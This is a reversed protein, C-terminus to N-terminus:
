SKDGGVELAILAGQGAELTLQESKLLVMSEIDARAKQVVNEAHEALSKTAFEVNPTANKIKWRLHELEERIARVGAKNQILQDIKDVYEVIGDFAVSAAAKAEDMTQKLRPEEAIGPLVRLPGDRDLRLTAPIGTTNMSSVFSAWQALSMEVEILQEGQSFWDRKLMRHRESRHVQLTITERHNIDSDNLKVGRGGIHGRHASIMCFAPHEEVLDAHDPQRDSPTPPIADPRPM